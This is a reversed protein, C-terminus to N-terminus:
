FLSQQAQAGADSGEPDGADDRSDPVGLCSPLQQHDKSGGRPASTKSKTKARDRNRDDNPKEPLPPIPLLEDVVLQWWLADHIQRLHRTMSSWEAITALAARRPPRLTKIAERCDTAAVGDARLRLLIDSAVDTMERWLRVDVTVDHNDVQLPYVDRSHSARAYIAVHKSQLKILPNPPLEPSNQPWWCRQINQEGGHNIGFLPWAAVFPPEPPNLLLPLPSPREAGKEPPRMPVWVFGRETAFWAMCRLKLTQLAFVCAACLANTNFPWLRSYNAVTTFNDSIADRVRYTSGLAGCHSCADPKSRAQIPEGKTNCPLPRGASRWILDTGNM